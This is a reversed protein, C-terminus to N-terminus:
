GEALTNLLDGEDGESWTSTSGDDGAYTATEGELEHAALLARWRKAWSRVDWEWVTEGTPWSTIAAVLLEPNRPLVIKGAQIMQLLRLVAPVSWAKASERKRHDFDNTMNM